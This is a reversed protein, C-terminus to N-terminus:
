HQKASLRRETRGCQGSTELEALPLGLSLRRPLDPNAVFPWGFAVLDAHGAALTQPSIGYDYDYGGVIITNAYRKRLSERFSDSVLLADDRQAESVRIYAIEQEELVDAAALITDVLEPDALDESTTYPTLCV